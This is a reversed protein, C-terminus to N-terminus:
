GPARPGAPLRRCAPTRTDMARRGPARDGQVVVPVARVAHTLRRARSPQVPQAPDLEPRVLRRQSCNRYALNDHDLLPAAPRRGADVRGALHAHLNRQQKGVAPSETQGRNSRDCSSAFRAAVPVRAFGSANRRTLGLAPGCLSTRGIGQLVPTLNDLQDPRATGGPPRVVSPECDAAAPDGPNESADDRRGTDHM